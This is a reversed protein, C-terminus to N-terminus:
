TLRQTKQSLTTCYKLDYVDCKQDVYRMGHITVVIQLTPNNNKLMELVHFDKVGLLPIFISSNEELVINGINKCRVLDFVGSSVFEKEMDLIPEYDDPVLLTPKSPLSLRGSRKMIEHVFIRAYNAGGDSNNNPNSHIYDIYLRGM